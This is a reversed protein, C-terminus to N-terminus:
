QPDLPEWSDPPCFCLTAIARATMRFGFMMSRSSAVDASSELLSATTCSASSLIQEEPVSDILEFGVVRTIAWLSEVMRLASLITTSSRPCITSAPVCLSSM